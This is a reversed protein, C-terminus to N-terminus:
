YNGKISGDVLVVEIVSGYEATEGAQVSQTSVEAGALSSLAGTSRIFLGANELMNKANTYARGSVDPVTVPDRAPADGGAYLIVTTGPSVVANAAPLQATVSEGEGVVKVKLGKDEMAKQGEAVAKGVTKPVTINLEKIEEETYHPEVGLYPLVDSLINGVVPAAMQGGSIYIGTSTSPTDLLLLIVVQPDDMPAIGCFSVIYEKAAGEGREAQQAVKESTGTKGGVRYGKVYANAGTGTAVVEELIGRVTDSTEKSVVQRVVTPENLMVVNGDSDTVQKVVHPQM